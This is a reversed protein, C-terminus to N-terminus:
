RIIIVFNIRFDNDCMLHSLIIKEMRIWIYIYILTKKYLHVKSYNNTLM